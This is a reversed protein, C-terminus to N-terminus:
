PRKASPGYSPLCLAHHERALHLGAVLSGCSICFFLLHVLLHFLLHFLLRLCATALRGETGYPWRRTSPAAPRTSRRERLITCSALKTRLLLPLRLRSTPLTPTQTLRRRTRCHLPSSPPPSHRLVTAAPSSPATAARAMLFFHTPRSFIDNKQPHPSGGIAAFLQDGTRM